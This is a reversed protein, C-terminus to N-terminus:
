NIIPQGKSNISVKINLEIVNRNNDEYVLNYRQTIDSVVFELNNAIMWQNSNAKKYKLMGGNMTDGYGNRPTVTIKYKDTENYLITSENNMSNGITNGDVYPIYNKGYKSVNCVMSKVSWEDNKSNQQKVYFIKNNLINYTTSGIKIGEEAIITRSEFDIFVDYHMNSLSLISELQERTFYRFTSPNLSLGQAETTIISQLNNKQEQTLNSYAKGQNKLYVTKGSGDVYSENTTAIDDVRRQIIELETYFGKLRTNDLSDTAVNISIGAIILMVVITIILALLTVGKNNTKLNYKIEM